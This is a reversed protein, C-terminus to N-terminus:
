FLRGVPATYIGMLICAMYKGHRPDCKVMMNAPEFVSNTIDAVSMQEDYTKEASIVAAYSSLMFHISAECEEGGNEIRGAACPEYSGGIATGPDYACNLNTNTPREIDLSRRCICINYFAENGLMVAVDTHELLSHTSLVCSNYPEAVATSVQPSPCICFGLKSKRGSDASLVGLYDQATLANASLAPGYQLGVETATWRRWRRWTTARALM